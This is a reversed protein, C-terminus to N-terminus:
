KDSDNDDRIRPLETRIMKLAVFSFFFICKIYTTGTGEPLLGPGLYDPGLRAKVM